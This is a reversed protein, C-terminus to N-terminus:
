KVEEFGNARWAKIGGQLDYVKKFGMAQMLQLTKGSRNGSNCYIFYTKDRDLSALSTVFKETQYFDLQKAGKIHGADFEQKTRVDLLVTNEDGAYKELLSKFDQASVTQLDQNTNDQKMNDTKKTFSPSAFYVAGVILVLALVGALINKNM